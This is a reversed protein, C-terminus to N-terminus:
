KKGDEQYNDSVMEFFRDIKQSTWLLPFASSGPRTGDILVFPLRFSWRRSLVTAPTLGGMEANGLIGQGTKCCTASCQWAPPYSQRTKRPVTATEGEISLEFADIANSIAGRHHNWKTEIDGLQDWWICLMVKADHINLLVTLTFYHGPMGWSKRRKSNEYHVWKEDSAVMFHLFRKQNQRKFCSNVLLSISNLM